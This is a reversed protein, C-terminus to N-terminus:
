DRDNSGAHQRMLLFHRLLLVTQVVMLNTLLFFLTEEIPVDVVEFGAIRDAHLAWIGSHIAVGDACSLYVTPLIAAVAILGLRPLLVQRGVLWHVVLVPAAWGLEFILYTAHGFV